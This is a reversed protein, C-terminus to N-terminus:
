SRIKLYDFFLSNVALWNQNILCIYQKFYKNLSEVILCNVLEM